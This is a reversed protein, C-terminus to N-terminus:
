FLSLQVDEQQVPKKIKKVEPRKKSPTVIKCGPAADTYSMGEDFFHIAMGYIEDDHFANRGSKKVESIIYSCCQIISNKDSAMRDNFKEAFHADEAAFCKLHDEIVKIFENNM